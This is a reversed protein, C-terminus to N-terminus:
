TRRPALVCFENGEPDALVVWPEDGRQGVDAHRAGLALLRGVEAAQDDPRFDLHLRNKVHKAGPDRGFLLGPLRDPAPRIECEEPSDDVVVWGLARAWWRGLAAPDAADVVLQEWELTM